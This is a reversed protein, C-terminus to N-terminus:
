DASPPPTVLRAAMQNRSEDRVRIFEAMREPAIPEGAPM